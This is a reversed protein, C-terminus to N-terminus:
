SRRAKNGAGNILSVLCYIFVGACVAALALAALALAAASHLGGQTVGELWAFYVVGLAAYAAALLSLCLGLWLILKRNRTM